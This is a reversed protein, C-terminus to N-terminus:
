NYSNIILPQVHWNGWLTACVHLLSNQGRDAHGYKPTHTTHKFLLFFFDLVGNFTMLLDKLPILITLIKLSIIRKKPVRTGFSFLPITWQAPKCGVQHWIDRTDIISPGTRNALLTAKLICKFDAESTASLTKPYRFTNKWIKLPM